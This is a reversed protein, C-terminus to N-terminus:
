VKNSPSCSVKKTSYEEYGQFHEVTQHKISMVASYSVWEPNKPSDLFFWNGSDEVLAVLVAKISEKNGSKFKTLIRLKKAIAWCKQAIFDLNNPFGDMTMGVIEDPYEEIRFVAATGM